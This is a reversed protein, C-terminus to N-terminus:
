QINHVIAVCIGLLVMFQLMGSYIISKSKYAIYGSFPAVVLYPVFQIFSGRNNFFILILFIMFQLVISFYGTQEKFIHLIFGRLYFEYMYVFALSLVFEYFLFNFFNKIIFAPISYLNFFSTVRAVVLFIIGVILLNIGLLKFGERWEGVGVGINKLNKKLFYKCYFIPLILFFVITTFLQQFLGNADFLSYIILSLAIFFLSIVSEKLKM